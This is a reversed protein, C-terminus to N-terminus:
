IWRKFARDWQRFTKRLLEKPTRLSSRTKDWCFKQTKVKKLHMEKKKATATQFQSKKRVKSASRNKLCIWKITHKTWISLQFCLSLSKSKNKTCVELVLSDCWLDELIQWCYTRQFEKQFSFAKVTRNFRIMSKWIMMPIRSSFHSIYLRHFNKLM